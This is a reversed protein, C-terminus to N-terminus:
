TSTSTIQGAPVTVSIILHEKQLTVQRRSLHRACPVAILQGVRLGQHGQGETQQKRVGELVDQGHVLM